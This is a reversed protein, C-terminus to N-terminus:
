FNKKSEENRTFAINAFGEVRGVQVVKTGSLPQTPARDGIFTLDKSIKKITASM